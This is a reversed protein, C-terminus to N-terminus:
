QENVLENRIGFLVLYNFVITPGCESEGMCVKIVVTELSRFIFGQNGAQIM